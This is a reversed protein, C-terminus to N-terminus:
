RTIPDANREEEIIQDRLLAFKQEYEPLENRNTAKKQVDAVKAMLNLFDANLTARVADKQKEAAVAKEEANHVQDTIGQVLSQILTSQRGGKPAASDRTDMQNSLAPGGRRFFSGVGVSLRNDVNGTHETKRLKDELQSKVLESRGQRAAKGGLHAM